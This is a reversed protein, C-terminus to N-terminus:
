EHPTEAAAEIGRCEPSPTTCADCISRGKEDTFGALGGCSGKLRRNNIIVGAAMACLAVAFVVLSIMIAGFYGLETDAAAGRSTQLVFHSTRRVTIEEGTRIMLLAAIQNEEAWALGKEPGMVMLATAYADASICDNANVSVATLLHEVPRATQPNITHSYRKGDIERFNRYDGSSALATTAADLLVVSHLRRQTADPAEIGISWHSASENRVRIEGGIEGMYSQVGATDLIRAREDVACGEAIASLDVHLGAVAKGLAPPSSRVELRTYGSIARVNDLEAESPLSTRPGAAGAGFSWLSILPGVTIDFAGGSQQSIEQARMVVAATDASVPFWHNAEARNFQSVESDAIYTSMHANITDLRAAIQQKVSAGPAAGRYKVEYSTGMTSGRVFTSSAARLPAGPLLLIAIGALFIFVAAHRKM